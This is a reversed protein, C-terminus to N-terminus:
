AIEEDPGSAEQIKAIEAETKEINEEFKKRDALLKKYQKQADKKYVKGIEIWYNIFTFFDFGAKDSVQASADQLVKAIFIQLEKLQEDTYELSM